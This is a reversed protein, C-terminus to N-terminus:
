ILSFYVISFLCFFLNDIDNVCEYNGNDDNDPSGELTQLSNENLMRTIKTMSVTMM